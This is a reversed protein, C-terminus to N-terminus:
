MSDFVNHSFVTHLLILSAGSLKEFVAIVLFYPPLPSKIKVFLPFFCKQLLIIIPIAPKLPSKIIKANLAIFIVDHVVHITRTSFFFVLLHSASTKPLFGAVMELHHVLVDWGSTAVSRSIARTSSISTFSSRLEVFYNVIKM